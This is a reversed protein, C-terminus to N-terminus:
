LKFLDQFGQLFVLPINLLKLSTVGEVEEEIRERAQSINLRVTNQEISKKQIDAKVTEVDM